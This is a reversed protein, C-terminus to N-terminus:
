IYIIASTFLIEFVIWGLRLKIEFTRESDLMWKVQNEITKALFFIPIKLYFPKKDFILSWQQAYSYSFTCPCKCSCDLTCSKSMAKAMLFGLKQPASKLSMKAHFQPMELHYNKSYFQREGQLRESAM